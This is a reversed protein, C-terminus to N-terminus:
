GTEFRYVHFLSPLFTFPLRVGRTVAFGKAEFVKRIGIIDTHHYHGKDGFGAVARGLKYLASETPGSVIVRGGPRLKKRFSRVWEPLDDVHELVDAAVIADLSGDPVQDLTAPFSVPLGRRAALGAAFQPFLDVAQVSGCREALTPLFLGIGCGFELVADDAGFAGLRAVEEYRRWMLWRILPNEHMYSPIAMEDRDHASVEQGIRSTIEAIEEQPVRVIM